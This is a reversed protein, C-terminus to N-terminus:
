AAQDPQAFLRRELMRIEASSYDAIPAVKVKRLRYLKVAMEMSFPKSKRRAHTIYSRGCGLERALAAATLDPQTSMWEALTM